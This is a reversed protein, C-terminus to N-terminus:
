LKIERNRKRLMMEFLMMPQTNENRMPFVTNHLQGDVHMNYSMYIMRASLICQHNHLSLVHPHCDHYRCMGWSHSVNTHFLMCRLWVDEGSNDIKRKHLCVSYRHSHSWLVHRHCNPCHSMDWNHYDCMCQGFKCMERYKHTHLLSLLWNEYMQFYLM